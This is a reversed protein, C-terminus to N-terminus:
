LSFRWRGSEFPALRTLQYMIPTLAAWIYWDFTSRCFLAVWSFSRFNLQLILFNQTVQLLGFLTALGLVVLWWRGSESRNRPSFMFPAGSPPIRRPWRVEMM